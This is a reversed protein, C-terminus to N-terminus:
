VQATGDWAHDPDPYFALGGAGTSVLWGGPVGARLVQHHSSPLETWEIRAPAPRGAPAPAAAATGGNAMAAAGGDVASLLVDEAVRYLEGQYTFRRTDGELDVNDIIAGFPVTMAPGSAPVGTRQNLKRAEITKVLSFKPM